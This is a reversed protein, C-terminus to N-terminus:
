VLPTLSTGENKPILVPVIESYGTSDRFLKLYLAIKESNTGTSIGFSPPVLDLM